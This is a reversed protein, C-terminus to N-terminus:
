KRRRRTRTRTRSRTPATAATPASRIRIVSPWSACPSHASTARLLTGHRSAAPRSNRSALLMMTRRATQTTRTTGDSGRRRWALVRGSRRARRGWAHWSTANASFGTLRTPLSAIPFHWLSTMHCRPVSVIVAHRWSVIVCRPFPPILSHPFSTIHPILCLPMVGIRCPPSACHPLPAIVSQPLSAIVGHPM